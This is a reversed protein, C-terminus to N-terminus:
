LCWWHPRWCRPIGYIPRKSFLNPALPLYTKHTFFQYTYSLLYFALLAFSMVVWFQFHHLPTEFMSGHHLASPVFVVLMVALLLNSNLLTNHPSVHISSYRLGGVLISIGLVFLLNTIHAGIM